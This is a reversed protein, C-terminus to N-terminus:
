AAKLKAKKVSKVPDYGFMSWIVPDASIPTSVGQLMNLTIGHYAMKGHRFLQWLMQIAHQATADNIGFGQKSIAEESSCSPEATSKDSDLQSKFLDYVSPIYTKKNGTIANIGMIINASHNDNGCDIWVVNQGKTFSKHIHKRGISNDVCGFVVCDTFRAEVFREVHATWSTGGFNNFREALVKVKPQGIDCGWFAQRGLNSVSVVDDDVLHVNLGANGLAKLTADMKFLKSAVESGTGGCGIVVVKIARNDKTACDSIFDPSIIDM